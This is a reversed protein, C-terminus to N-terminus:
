GDLKIVETPPVKLEHNVGAQLYQNMLTKLEQGQQNLTGTEEILNKRNVLLDYYKALANELAKWVSKKRDNLVTTMDQWFKREERKVREKKQEETEFNSRKQNRPNGLVEQNNM